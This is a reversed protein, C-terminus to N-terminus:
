KAIEQRFYEKTKDELYLSMYTMAGAIVDLKGDAQRIWEKAISEYIRETIEYINNM